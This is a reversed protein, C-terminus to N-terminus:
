DYWNSTLPLNGDFAPADRIVNGATRQYKGSLRYKRDIQWDLKTLLKFDNEDLSELAEDSIRLLSETDAYPRAAAVIAIWRESACCARLEGALTEAALANIGDMPSGAM